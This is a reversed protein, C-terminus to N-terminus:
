GILCDALKNLQGKVSSDIVKDGYRIIFGGLIDKNTICHLVVKRELLATFRQAFGAKDAESIDVATVMDIDLMDQAQHQLLVFRKEIEAAALLRKKEILLRVFNSESSGDKVKALELIVKVLDDRDIKPSHYLRQIDKHQAITTLTELFEAWAETQGKESAYSFAAEAYPRAITMLQSM